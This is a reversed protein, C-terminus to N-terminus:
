ISRVLYSIRFRFRWFKGQTNLYNGREDTVYARVITRTQGILDRADLPTPHQPETYNVDGAEATIPCEIVVQESKDNVIIGENVLDCHILFSNFQNLLSGSDGLFAIPLLGHGSPSGKEFTIGTIPPQSITFASAVRLILSGPNDIPVQVIDFDGQVPGSTLHLIDDIQFTGVPADNPTITVLTGGAAYELTYGGLTWGMETETLTSDRSHYENSGHGLIPGISNAVDFDVVVNFENFRILTKQTAPDALLEIVPSGLTQPDTSKKARATESNLEYGIAANLNTIDYLGPSISITKKEYSEVQVTPDLPDDVLFFTSLAFSNNAETINFENYTLSASMVTLTCHIADSPVRIPRELKVTIASGNKFVRANDAPDSSIIMDTNEVHANGQFM